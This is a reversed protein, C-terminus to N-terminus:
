LARGAILLELAKGEALSKKVDILRQNASGRWPLTLSRRAADYPGDVVVDALGALESKAGDLREWLYGTYIWLDYGREKLREAVPILAAAQEMPEGGTFTVGATLPNRAIEALLEAATWVTGGEYGLLGPNQCGECHHPCGQLFVAARLGPGDTVSDHLVSAVRLTM